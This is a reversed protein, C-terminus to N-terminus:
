GRGVEMLSQPWHLGAEATIEVLAGGDNEAAQRISVDFRHGPARATALSPLRSSAIRPLPIGTRPRIRLPNCCPNGQSQPKQFHSDWRLLYCMSRIPDSRTPCSRVQEVANYFLLFSYNISSVNVGVNPLHCTRSRTSGGRDEGQSLRISDYRRRRRPLCLM